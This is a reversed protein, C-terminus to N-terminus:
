NTHVMKTQKNLGLTLEEKGCSRGAIGNVIHGTRPRLNPQTKLIPLKLDVAAGRGGSRHCRRFGKKQITSSM